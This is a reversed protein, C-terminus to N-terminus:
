QKAFHKPVLSQKFKPQEILKLSPIRWAEAKLWKPDFLSRWLGQPPKRTSYRPNMNDEIRERPLMGKTGERSDRWIRDLARLLLTIAISRWPLTHIVLTKKGEVESDDESSMGDVGLVRVAEGLTTLGNTDCAKM